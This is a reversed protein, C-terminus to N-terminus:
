NKSSFQHMMLQHLEHNSHHSLCNRSHTMFITIWFAITRFSQMELWNHTDLIHRILVLNYYLIAATQKCNDVDWVCKPKEFFYWIHMTEKIVQISIYVKEPCQFCNNGAWSWICGHCLFRHDMSAFSSQRIVLVRLEQCYYTCLYTLSDFFHNSYSLM